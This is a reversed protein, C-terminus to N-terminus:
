HVTATPAVLVLHAQAPVEVRSPFADLPVGKGEPKDYCVPKGIGAPATLSVSASHDTPNHLVTAWRGAERFSFGAVEGQDIRTVEEAPKSNDPFIEVLYYYKTGKKYTLNGKPPAAASLPDILTIETSHYDKPLDRFYSESPLSDFRAYNHDHIKIRLRGYKWAQPGDSELTRSVGLRIRGWVGAASQDAAADIAVLGILRTQSLYWEQQGNWPILEDVKHGWNPRSLAYRVALSGFDPGTTTSLRELASCCRAGSWHNGTLNLRVEATVVQLAADLPNPRRAPDTIMAGVFTDKGQYGVGYNRGNGAFSWAGYRGRPGVIDADHFVYGDPLPLSAMPKWLEATIATMYGHGYGWIGGCTEAVRKNLKDDCLSAIIDPGWPGGGGWYHKWCADTYYEPMGAPEVNYPYYNTTRKLMALTTPNGTLQWYRASYAVDLHHYVFCENQTNVYAFAGRPYVASDLLKVFADVERAYREDKWIRHAFEM